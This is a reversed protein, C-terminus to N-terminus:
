LADGLGDVDRLDEVVHRAAGGAIQQGLRRRPQCGISLITPILSAVPSRVADRAQPRSRRPM